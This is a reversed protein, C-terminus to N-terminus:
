GIPKLFRAQLKKEGSAFAVVVKAQPGSGEVRIVNGAGFTAHTVHSGPALAENSAQELRLEATAGKVGLGGRHIVEAGPELSFKEADNGLGYRGALPQSGTNRLRIWVREAWASGCWALELRAGSPPMVDKWTTPVAQWSAPDARILADLADAAHVAAPHIPELEEGVKRYAGYPSLRKGQFLRPEARAVMELGRELWARRLRPAIAAAAAGTLHTLLMSGARRPGCATLLEALHREAAPADDLLLGALIAAPLAPATELSAKAEFARVEARWADESKGAPSPPEIAKDEAFLDGPWRSIVQACDWSGTTPFHQDLAGAVLREVAEHLDGGLEVPTRGARLLFVPLEPSSVARKWALAIENVEAGDAFVTFAERQDAELISQSMTWRDGLEPATPDVLEFSTPDHLGFVRCLFGPGCSTMLERYSPPWAIGRRRGAADLTEPGSPTLMGIRTLNWPPM